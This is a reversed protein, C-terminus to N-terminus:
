FSFAEFPVQKRSPFAFFYIENCPWADGSLEWAKGVRTTDRGAGEESPM